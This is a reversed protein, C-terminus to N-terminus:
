SGESPEALRYAGATQGKAIMTGWAPHGKFVDVLRESEAEVEPHELISDQGLDPTGNEWAEWLVKVCAAQTPTFFHDAGFWHVSRFDRSHRASPSPAGQPSSAPERAPAVAQRADQEALALFSLIPDGLETVLGHVRSREAYQHDYPHSEVEGKARACGDVVAGAIRDADVPTHRGRGTLLAAVDPAHRHLADLHEGYRDWGPPPWHAVAADLLRLIERYADLFPKLRLWEDPTLPPNPTDSV